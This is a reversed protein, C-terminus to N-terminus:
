LVVREWPLDELLIRRGMWLQSNPQNALSKLNFSADVLSTPISFFYVDCMSLVFLSFHFTLFVKEDFCM